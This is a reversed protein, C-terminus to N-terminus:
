TGPPILEQDYRLQLERLARKDLVPAKLLASAKRFYEDEHGGPTFVLVVKANGPGLNSFGHHLGREIFAVSGAPRMFKEGAVTFEIEGEVVYITEEMRRHIHYDSTAPGSSVEYMEFARKSQAPSVLSYIAFKGLQFMEGQQPPQVTQQTGIM